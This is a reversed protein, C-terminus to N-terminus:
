LKPDKRFVAEIESLIREAAPFPEDQMIESSKRRLKILGKM